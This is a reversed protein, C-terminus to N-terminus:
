EKCLQRLSSCKPALNKFLYSAPSTSNGRAAAFAKVHVVGHLVELHMLLARSRGRETIPVARPWPPGRGQRDGPVGAQGQAGQSPQDPQSPAAPFSSVDSKRKEQLCFIM